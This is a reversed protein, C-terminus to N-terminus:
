RESNAALAQFVAIEADPVGVSNHLHILKWDGAEQRFIATMRTQTSVGNPARFVPRDVVWGLTGDAYALPESATVQLGARRFTHAFAPLIDWTDTGTRWEEPSSGVLAAAAAASALQRIVTEDGRSLAALFHTFAAAVDPAREM